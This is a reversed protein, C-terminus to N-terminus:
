GYPRTAPQYNDFVRDIIAQEIGYKSLVSKTVELSRLDPLRRNHKWIVSTTDQDFQDAQQIMSEYTQDAWGGSSLFPMKKPNKHWQIGSAEDTWAFVYYSIWESCCPFQKWTTYSDFRNNLHNWFKTLHNVNWVWPTLNSINPLHDVKKDVLKSIKPESDILKGPLYYTIRYRNDSKFTSFDCPKLMFDKSDFVVVDDANSNVSYFVKNIQQEHWGIKTPCATPKIEVTWENSFAQSVIDQVRQDNTNKGIVVILDKQGQWNKNLCYCFMEFQSLDDQFTVVLIKHTM